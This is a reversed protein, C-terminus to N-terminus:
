LSQGNYRLHSRVVRGVRKGDLQVEDDTRAVAWDLGADLPSTDEDLKHGYLPMSAELRHTNCAVLGALSMGQAQRVDGLAARVTPMREAAILLEFGDEGTYGTRDVWAPCDAIPWDVVGYRALQSLDRHCLWQLM